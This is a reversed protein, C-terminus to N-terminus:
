GRDGERDGAGGRDGGGRGGGSDGGGRGAAQQGRQPPQPSPGARWAFLEEVFRNVKHEASKETFDALFAKLESADDYGLINEVIPACSDPPMQLLAGMKEAAWRKLQEGAAM